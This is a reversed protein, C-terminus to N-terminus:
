VGSLWDADKGEVQGFWRLRDRKLQWVSQNWCWSIESTQMKRRKWM